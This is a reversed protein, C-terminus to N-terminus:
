KGKKKRKPKKKAKRKPKKKAKRKPKETAADPQQRAVRRERSGM